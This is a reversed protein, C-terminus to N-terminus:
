MCLGDRPLDLAEGDHDLIARSRPWLGTGAEDDSLLATRRIAYGGLAIEVYDGGRVHSAGFSTDDEDLNGSFTDGV